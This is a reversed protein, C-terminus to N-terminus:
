HPTMAVGRIAALNDHWQHAHGATGRFVVTNNFEGNPDTLVMASFGTAPASFGPEERHNDAFDVYTRGDIVLRSLEEDKQILDFLETWEMPTMRAALLTTNDTPEQEMRGRLDDVLDGVSILPSNPNDELHGQMTETMNSDYILATLAMTQEHTLSSM